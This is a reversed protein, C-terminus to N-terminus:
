EKEHRASSKLQELFREIQARSFRPQGGPTRYSELQGGDAWSRVTEPSVGLMQAVERITYALPSDPM